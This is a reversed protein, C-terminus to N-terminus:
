ASNWKEMLEAYLDNAHWRTGYVVVIGWPVLTPMLAKWFWDSVEQRVHLTSIMKNDVLDDAIIVDSRRSPVAAGTSVIDFTPERSGSEKEQRRVTKRDERWLADHGPILDGFIKRYKKNSELIQVIHTLFPTANDKVHSAIIIRLQPNHGVLWCPFIVSGVTSKAFQRPALFLQQQYDPDFVDKNYPDSLLHQSARQLNDCMEKHFLPSPALDSPEYIYNHFAWLSNRAETEEENLGKIAQALKSSFDNAM